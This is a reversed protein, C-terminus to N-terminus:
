YAEAREIVFDRHLHDENLLKGLGDPQCHAVMQGRVPRRLNILKSMTGIYESGRLSSYVFQASCRQWVTYRYFVDSFDFNCSCLDRFTLYNDDSELRCM